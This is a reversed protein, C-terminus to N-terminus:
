KPKSGANPIDAQVNPQPRIRYMTRIFSEATKGILMDIMGAPFPYENTESDYDGGLELDSPDEFVGIVTISQPAVNRFTLRGEHYHVIPMRGVFHDHLANEVDGTVLRYPSKNDKGGIYLAAPEGTSKIVLRPIDAYSVKESDKLVKLSAIQQTYGQYPRRFVTAKDAEMIMRVRLTDLEDAVQDPSLSTNTVGEASTVLEM